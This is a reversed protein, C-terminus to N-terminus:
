DVGVGVGVGVGVCYVRFRRKDLVVKHEGWGVRLKLGFVAKTRHACLNSVRLLRFICLAYLGSIAARVLQQMVHQADVSM